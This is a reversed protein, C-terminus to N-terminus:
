KARHKELLYKIRTDINKVLKESTSETVEKVVSPAEEFIHGLSPGRLWALPYRHKSMRKLVGAFGTRRPTGIFASPVLKRAGGADIRYGVGKKTQSTGKFSILSIRKKEIGLRAQWSSYTAKEKTIRTRISKQKVNVEGAISKVIGAKASTATRNIAWTMVKPMGNPISRLMKQIGRLRKEDFKIEVMQKPM